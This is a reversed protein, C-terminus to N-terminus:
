RIEEKKVPKRAVTAAGEITFSGGSMRGQGFANGVQVDLTMTGGTLRAGGSVIERSERVPPSADPPAADPPSADIEGGGGSGCGALLLGLVAVFKRM